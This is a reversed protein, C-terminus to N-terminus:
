GRGVRGNALQQGGHPGQVSFPMAAASVPRPGPGGVRRAPDTVAGYLSALILAPPHQGNPTM